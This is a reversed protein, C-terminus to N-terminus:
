IHILSLDFPTSLNYENVNDSNTGIVYVKSGDDNFVMGTPSLEQAAISFSDVFVATSVDFPTSLNYENIDDGSLGIVYLKNGLSNFQLGTPNLEQAAVSFSDVFVGTSVDFPASLNYENIDDGGSGLVYLKTGDANFTMGRPVAEQAAVSLTDVFVATDVSFADPGIYELCNINDFFEVGINSSHAGGDGSNKIDSADLSAFATDDFVFDLSPISDSVEHAIASGNLTLTAKTDGESLSIVPTFGAPLNTITVESGLDLLNDGDADQFTDGELVICLDDLPDISGNNNTSETLDGTDIDFENIEDGNSGIVYLKSGDPNFLLGRPTAEETRVSFSRFFVGTSVDYPTALNYENVDDGASGVVFLKLGDQNFTLGTPTAEQAAVSFVDNFSATSVDFAISLDYENIDDGNSGMVYMKNGIDNFALAQPTTEQASVSFSDVFVLTSLDFPNQLEYENVDDGTTGIVFVKTGTNNFVLDRPGTEESAVSYSDVFVGTSVDYPVSLIYENIDDGNTGVVYLRTGDNNFAIGEPNTEQAAISLLDNHVGLSIDYADPGFYTLCRENDTFNIGVGPAFPGGSGSNAVDSAQLNLFASDDFDFTLGTIDDINQHVLASGLFTLTAKTDGESLTMVPTLGAPSNGITVESGIDLVGDGNTDQFTDGDLVICLSQSGDISGDNANAETFDGVGISYENVDNGTNGVVFLKSGDNNFALGQPSTDQGSVLFRETFVGTSVDFATSLSYVNIDDGALGVVYLITGDRNFTMGQPSTEQAAVSFADNFVGTSVDYPVALDYENINDNINGVVYVKTGDNNFAMGSPATDQAAISFTDNFVATSVDCPVSLDYENIDDGSTGIVYLKTHDNNFALGTANFDQAAVSLTDNFVATSVDFPTALDYENIENGNSGIIYMKTGDNNFALDTPNTEQASVSFSDEFVANVVRFSNPGIYSLSPGSGLLSLAKFSHPSEISNKKNHTSSTEFLHKQEPRQHGNGDVACGFNSLFVAWFVIPLGLWDAKFIQSRISVNGCYTKKM